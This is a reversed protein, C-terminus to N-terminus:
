ENKSLIVDIKGVLKSARLQVNLEDRIVHILNDFLEGILPDDRIVARYITEVSIVAKLVVHSWIPNVANDVLFKLLPKLSEQDRNAIAQDLKGLRDLEDIMGVILAPNEEKLVSDLAESFNFQKLERNWKTMGKNSKVQDFVRFNAPMSLEHEAKRREELENKSEPSPFKIQVIGGSLGVALMSADPVADFATIDNPMKMTYLLAFSSPDFVKITRDASATVLNSRVIAMAVITRTHATFNTVISATSKIDAVVVREDCAAFIRSGKIIMQSIPAELNMESVMEIKNLDWVRVFGDQSASVWLNGAELPCIATVADRHADFKKTEEKVAIDCIHISGNGCGVVIENQFPSFGACFVPGSNLKFRRLLIQHNNVPYVDVAGDERGLCILVGDKRFSVATFPTKAKAFSFLHQHTKGDLWCGSLGSLAVASHPAIPSFAIRTITSNLEILASEKLRQWATSEESEDRSRTSGVSFPVAGFKLFAKM